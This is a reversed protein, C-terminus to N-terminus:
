VSDELGLRKLARKRARGSEQDPVYLLGATRRVLNAEYDHLTGDAYAVRWLMEMIEIRQEESFSDRITKTAAYVRNAHHPDEVIGTILADADEAALEFRDHLIDVIIQREADDVNGDLLAAEVLVAAAADALADDNNVGEDPADRGDLFAKIRDFMLKRLM